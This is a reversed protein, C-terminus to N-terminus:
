PHHKKQLDIKEILSNFKENIVANDSTSKADDYQSKSPSNKDM